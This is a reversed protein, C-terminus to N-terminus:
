EENKNRKGHGYGHHDMKTEVKIEIEPQIRQGKPLILGKYNNQPDKIAPDIPYANMLNTPYPKLLRTIDTLPAEKNLWTHEHSEHLIVPMRLNGIKLLLENATTTIIAFGNTKEGDSNLWSDYIGAMAFPRKKNQLYVLYPKDLGTDKPGVIITSAIVLCRQSRILKRFEPKTIIGKAGSYNPDNDANRDGETRVNTILTPKKSESPIMGFKFLQLHKPDECTIIPAEQGSSLNHNKEFPIDNTELNFRTEIVECSEVILFRECM